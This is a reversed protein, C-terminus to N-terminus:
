IVIVVTARPDAGARAVLIITIGRRDTLVPGVRKTAYIMTKMCSDAPSIDKLEQTLHEDRM